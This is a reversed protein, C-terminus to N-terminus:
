QLGLQTKGFVVGDRFVIMALGDSEPLGYWRRSEIRDSDAARDVKGPSGFTATVQDLTMGEQIFDVSLGLQRYIPGMWEADRRALYDNFTLVHVGKGTLANLAAPMVAALTKGAGTQMDVVHGEDIALAALVQEDFPRQGLARRSAERVIAFFRDRIDALPVGSRATERLTRVSHEIESDTLQLLETEASAMAALAEDRCFDFEVTSGRLRSLLSLRQM